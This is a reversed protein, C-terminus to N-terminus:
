LSVKERHPLVLGAPCWGLIEIEQPFILFYIFTKFVVIVPITANKNKNLKWFDPRKHAQM